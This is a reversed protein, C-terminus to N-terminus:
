KAAAIVKEAKELAARSKEQLAVLQDVTKELESV